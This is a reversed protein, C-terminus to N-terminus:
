GLCQCTNCCVYMRVEALGSGPSDGQRLEEEVKSATISVEFGRGGGGGGGSGVSWWSLPYYVVTLVSSAISLRARGLETGGYAALLRGTSPVLSPDAACGPASGSPGRSCNQPSDRDSHPLPLISEPVGDFVLVRESCCPTLVSDRCYQNTYNSSFHLTINFRILTATSTQHRLHSLFSPVFWWCLPPPQASTPSPHQWPSPSVVGVGALTFNTLFRSGQQCSLM